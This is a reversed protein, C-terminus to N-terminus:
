NETATKYNYSYSKLTPSDDEPPAPQLAMTNASQPTPVLPQLSFFPSRPSCLSDITMSDKETLTKSKTPSSKPQVQILQNASDAKALPEPVVSLPSSDNSPNPLTVNLNSPEPAVQSNINPQSIKKPSTLAPMSMTRRLKDKKKKDKRSSSKKSQREYKEYWIFYDNLHNRHYCISCHFQDEHDNHSQKLHYISKTRYGKVQNKLNPDVENLVYICSRHFPKDCTQCLKQDFAEKIRNKCHSCCATEPATCVSACHGM